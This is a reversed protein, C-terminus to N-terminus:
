GRHRRRNHGDKRGWPCHCHGKGDGTTIHVLEGDRNFEYVANEKSTLRYGSADKEMTWGEMGPSTPLYTGEEFVRDEMIITNEKLVGYVM